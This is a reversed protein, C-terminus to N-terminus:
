NKLPEPREYKCCSHLENYTEDKARFEETDYGAKAIAKKISDLDTKSSDYKVTITKASVSWKASTVGDVSKAAADIKKKCMDCNGYVKFKEKVETSADQGFAFYGFLAFIFLATIRTKKM